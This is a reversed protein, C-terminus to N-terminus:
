ITNTQVDNCMCWIYYIMIYWWIDDYMMMNYWDYILWIDIMYWDYILWIDIVRRYAICRNRIIYVHFPTGWTRALGALPEAKPCAWSRHSRGTSLAPFLRFVNTKLRSRWLFHIFIPYNLIIWDCWVGWIQSFPYVEWTGYGFDMWIWSKSWILCDRSDAGNWATLLGEGWHWQWCCCLEWPWWCFDSWPPGTVETAQHIM